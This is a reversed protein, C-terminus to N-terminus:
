VESKKILKFFNKRSKKNKRNVKFNEILMKMLKEGDLYRVLKEEVVVSINGTEESVIIIFSDTIESLGIGARHRTGLEQSVNHNTSLPLYTNAAVIRNQSIITAGDHLPTKDYFISILLESTIEADLKIGTDIYDGLGTEKELVILAGIKRKSLFKVTETIEIFSKKMEKKENDIYEKQLFKNRGIYELARRMEPQFVILLAIFGLKLTNDLIYYVTYLKAIDSLKSVVMIILLGKILQEARTGKILIFLKYFVFSVILIDLVDLIRISLFIDLMTEM